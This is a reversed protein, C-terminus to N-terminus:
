LSMRHHEKSEQISEKQMLLSENNRRNEDELNFNNEEKWLYCFWMYCSQSSRSVCKQSKTVNENMFNLPSSFNVIFYALLLIVAVLRFITKHKNLSSEQVERDQM